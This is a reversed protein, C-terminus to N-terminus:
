EVFLSSGPISFGELAGEGRLTDGEGLRLMETPSRCVLVSRIDPEVIWVRPVGIAFYEELKQRVDLWRDDPSMIEVVLDPAVDLFRGTPRPLREKSVFVLDAARVRDPNRHTYIGIEGGMVWGLKREAVFNGLYRGLNFELYAHEDGTPPMPVIRGDILECPSFDGMALLEEGTILKTEPPALTPDM